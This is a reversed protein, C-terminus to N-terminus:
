TCDMCIETSNVMALVFEYFENVKMDFFSDEPDFYGDDMWERMIRWCVFAGQMTGKRQQIAKIADQILLEIKDPRLESEDVEFESDESENDQAIARDHYRKLESLVNPVKWEFRGVRALAIAVNKLVAVNVIRGLGDGGVEVVLKRIMDITEHREQANEYHWASQSEQSELAHGVLLESVSKLVKERLEDEAKGTESYEKGEGLLHAQQQAQQVFQQRQEVDTEPRLERLIWNFFVVPCRDFLKTVSGPVFELAQAILEFVGLRVTLDLIDWKHFVEELAQMFSDCDRELVQDLLGDIRLKQAFDRQTSQSVVRQGSVTLEYSNRESPPQVGPSMPQHQTWPGANPEPAQYQGQYSPHQYGFQDQMPQVNQQLQGQQPSFQVQQQPFLPQALEHKPTLQQQPSQRQQQFQTQKASLPSAPASASRTMLETQVNNWQELTRSMTALMYKGDVLMKQREEDDMHQARAFEWKVVEVCLPTDEQDVFVHLSDLQNEAERLQGMTIHTEALYVLAPLYDGAVMLAKEFCEKADMLRGSYLMLKGLQVLMEPNDGQMGVAPDYVHLLREVIDRDHWGLGNLVAVVHTLYAPNSSEMEQLCECLSIVATRASDLDGSKVLCQVVNMWHLDMDSVCKGKAKGITNVAKEWDNMAAYVRAQECSAEPFEAIGELHEFMRLAEEWRAGQAFYLAKGYTVFAPCEGAAVDFCRRASHIDGGSLKIWGVLVAASKNAPSQAALPYVLQLARDLNGNLWFIQAAQILGQDNASKQRDGIESEIEAVDQTGSMWHVCLKAVSIPLAFEDADGLNQLASLGARTDGTASTALADWIQWLKDGSEKSFEACLVRVHGFM